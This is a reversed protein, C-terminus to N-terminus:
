FLGHYPERHLITLYHVPNVPNKLIQLIFGTLGTFDQLDHEYPSRSSLARRTEKGFSEM